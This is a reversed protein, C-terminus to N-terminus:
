TDDGLTAELCFFQFVFMFVCFVMAEGYWGFTLGSLVHSEVKRINPDCLKALVYAHWARSCALVHARWARSSALM